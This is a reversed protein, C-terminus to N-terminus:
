TLLSQSVVETLSFAEVAGRMGWRSMKYLMSATIDNAWRGSQPTQEVVFGIEVESRIARERLSEMMM